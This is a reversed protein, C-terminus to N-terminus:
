RWVRSCFNGVHPCTYTHIRYTAEFDLTVEKIKPWEKNTSNTKPEMTIKIKKQVESLNHNTLWSFGDASAPAMLTLWM